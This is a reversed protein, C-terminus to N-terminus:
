EIVEDARVLITQPVTLGLAKATKLNVILDFRTPQQIPLDSPKAGDLIKVVYGAARRFLDPRNPSYSLLGGLAVFAGEDFVSALGAGNAAAVMEARFTEFMFDRSFLAAEAGAARAQKLQAAADETRAVEAIALELGQMGAARRAAAFFHPQGLNKPNSVAVVQKLRPLMERLLELRKEVLEDRLTAFGTVNGAPRAITGAVGSVELSDLSAVVIAVERSQAQIMRSVNGGGAVFVRTGAALLSAIQERMGDQSGGGYREEVRVNRGPMRGQERMGAEFAEFFSAERSALAMFGVTPAANGAQAAASRPLGALGGALLAAFARRDMM